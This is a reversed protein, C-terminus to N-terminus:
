YVKNYKKTMAKRDSIFKSLHNVKRSPDRVTVRM